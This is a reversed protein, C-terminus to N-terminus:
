IGGRSKADAAKKATRAGRVLQLPSREPIRYGKTELSYRWDPLAKAIQGVKAPTTEILMSGGLTRVVTAGLSTAVNRAAMVVKRDISLQLSYFVYHTM